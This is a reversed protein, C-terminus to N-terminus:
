QDTFNEGFVIRKQEESLGRFARAINRISKKGKRHAQLKEKAGRRADRQEQNSGFLRGIGRLVPNGSLMDDKHSQMEQKFARKGAVGKDAINGFDTEGIKRALRTRFKKWASMGKGKDGGIVGTAKLRATASELNEETDSLEDIKNGYDTNPNVGKPLGSDSSEQQQDGAGHMSSENVGSGEIDAATLVHGEGNNNGQVFNGDKDRSTIGKKNLASAVAHKGVDNAEITDARTGDAPHETLAILGNKTILFGNRKARDSIDNGDHDTLSHAMGNEGGIQNNFDDESMYMTEGDGLGSQKERLTEPTVWRHGDPFWMLGARPPPGPPLGREIRIREKETESLISGRDALLAGLDAIGHGKAAEELAKFQSDLKKYEEIDNSTAPIDDDTPKGGYRTEMDSMQKQIDEAKSVTGETEESGSHGHKKNIENANLHKQNNKWGLPHAKANEHGKGIPHEPDHHGVSGKVENEDLGAEQKAAVEDVTKVKLGHNKNKVPVGDKGKTELEERTDSDIGSHGVESHTVKHTVKGTEPDVSSTIGVLKNTDGTEFSLIRDALGGNNHILDDYAEQIEQEKEYESIGELHEPDIFADALTKDKNGEKGLFKQHEIHEDLIRNVDAGAKVWEAVKDAIKKAIDKDIYDTHELEHNMLERLHQTALKKGVGEKVETDLLGVIRRASEMQKLKTEREKKKSEENARTNKAANDQASLEADIRKQIESMPLHKRGEKFNVDRGDTKMETWEESGHILEGLQDLKANKEGVDEPTEPRGMANINDHYLKDLRDVDKKSGQIAQDLMDDLQKDTYNHGKKNEKLHDVQGRIYEHEDTQELEKIKAQAIALDKTQQDLANLLDANKKTLKEKDSKLGKIEQTKTKAKEKAKALQNKIRENEKTLRALEAPDAGNQRELNQENENNQLNEELDTIENETQTLEEENEVLKEETDNLDEENEDKQNKTNQINNKKDQLDEDTPPTDSEPTSKEEENLSWVGDEGKTFKSIHDNLEQINAKKASWSGGDEPHDLHGDKLLQQFGDKGFAEEFLKQAKPTGNFTFEETPFLKNERNTVDNLEQTAKHEKIFAEVGKEDVIHEWDEPPRGTEDILRQKLEDTLGENVQEETTNEVSETQDRKSKDIEEQHKLKDMHLKLKSTGVQNQQIPRKFKSEEHYNRIQDPTIGMDLLEKAIEPTQVIGDEVLAHIDKQEPTADDGVHTKEQEGGTSGRLIQDSLADLDVGEGGKTFRSGADVEKEEGMVNEAEELLRKIVDKKANDSLNENNNNNIFGHEDLLPRLVDAAHRLREGRDTNTKAFEKLQKIIEPTIEVRVDDPDGENVSIDNPDGTSTKTKGKGDQKVTRVRSNRHREKEKESIETPVDVNMLSEQKETRDYQINWANDFSPINFVGHQGVLSETSSRELEKDLNKLLSDKVKDFKKKDEESLSIGSIDLSHWRGRSDQWKSQALATSKIFAMVHQAVVEHSAELREKIEEPDLVDDDNGTYDEPFPHGKPFISDINSNVFNLYDDNLDSKDDLLNAQYYLHWKKGIGQDRFGRVEPALGEVILGQILDNMQAPYKDHMQNFYNDATTWNTTSQIEQELNTPDIVIKANQLEENKELIKLINKPNFLPSQYEESKNRSDKKHLVRERALLNGNEQAKIEYETYGGKNKPDKSVPSDVMEQIREEITQIKEDDPKDRNYRDVREKMDLLREYYKTNQEAKSGTDLGKFRSQHLVDGGENGKTDTHDTVYVLSDMVDEGIIDEFDKLRIDSSFDNVKAQADGSEAMLENLKQKMQTDTLTGARVQAQLLDQQTARDFGADAADLAARSFKEWIQKAQKHDLWSPKDGASSPIETSQLARIGYPDGTKTQTLFDMLEHMREDRDDRSTLKMDDQINELAETLSPDGGSQLKKAGIRAKLEDPSLDHASIEAGRKKKFLKNPDEFNIDDGRKRTKINIGLERALEQRLRTRLSQTFQFHSSSNPGQSTGGRLLGQFDITNMAVEKLHAYLEHDSLLAIDTLDNVAKDGFANLYKSNRSSWSSELGKLTTKGALERAEHKKDTRVLESFPKWQGTKFQMHSESGEKGEIPDVSPIEFAETNGTKKAYHEALRNRLGNFYNESHQQDASGGILAKLDVKGLTSDQANHFQKDLLESPYGDSELSIQEVGSINTTEPVIIKQQIAHRILDIMGERNFKGEENYASPIDEYSKPSRINKTKWQAIYRKQNDILKQKDTKRDQLHRAVLDQVKKTTTDKIKEPLKEQVADLKLNNVAGSAAIMIAVEKTYQEELYDLVESRTKALNTDMQNKTIPNNKFHVKLSKRSSGTILASIAKEDKVTGSLADLIRGLKANDMLTQKKDEPTYLHPHSEPTPADIKTFSEDDQKKYVHIPLNGFEFKEANQKDVSKSSLKEAHAVADEPRAFGEGAEGLTFPVDDKGVAYVSWAEDIDMYRVEYQTALSTDVKKTSTKDTSTKKQTGKGGVPTDRKAERKTQAVKEEEEPTEWQTFRGIHKHPKEHDHKTLHTFEALKDIASSTKALNLALNNNESQKARQTAIALALEEKDTGEEPIIDPDGM